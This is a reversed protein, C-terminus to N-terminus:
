RVFRRLRADQRFGEIFGDVAEDSPENTDEAYQAFARTAVRLTEVLELVGAAFDHLQWLDPNDCVSEAEAKVQELRNV